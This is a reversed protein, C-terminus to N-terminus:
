VVITKHSDAKRGRAVHRVVAEFVEEVTIQKMCEYQIPCDRYAEEETKVFNAMCPACPLEKRIIVSTEAKPQTYLYDTPGYLAVLPTKMANGIHMLGSDHCVLASAEKIIVAVEQISTKGALNVVPESCNKAFRDVVEQELTDGVLVVLLGHSHLQEILKHFNEAPWVKPSKEGNAASVQLVVFNKGNLGFKALTKSVDGGQVTTEYTRHIGPHVVELLDFHLDSEHVGTQVPVGDTMADKTWGMPIRLAETTHGIRRPIGALLIGFRFFSPSADFPVFALDIHERRLNWFFMLKKLLSAKEPLLWISDAITTGQLVFETGFNNGTIIHIKGEPYLKRLMAIMPTMMIFNGLGTYAPILFAREQLRPERVVAGLFKVVFRKIM